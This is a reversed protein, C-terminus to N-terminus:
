LCVDEIMYMINYMFIIPIVNKLLDYIQIKM